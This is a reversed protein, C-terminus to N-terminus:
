KKPTKPAPTKVAPVPTAPIASAPNLMVKLGDPDDTKIAVAKDVYEQAKVLDKTVSIHYGALYKYSEYLQDKNAKAMDVVALFKEYHPVALWKTGTFDVYSNTRARYLHFPAFKDNIAIAKAYMSDAKLGQNYRGLTDERPTYATVFYQAMAPNYWDTSTLAQKKKAKWEMSKTSYDVAKAYKKQGYAITYMTANHNNITDLPAAKEYYTIALSDQKLCQYGKAFYVNDLFYPKVGAKVMKELNNIGDQCKGLEINSYGKMRFVDNDTAGGAEAKQTFELASEYDKALFILKATSLLVPSTAEARDVYKRFLSSAQKYRNFIIYYEGMRKYYPAFASDTEYASQYNNVTFQYNKGRLYVVGLRIYAKATKNVLISQEYATAAPGGDNKLLYADGKVINMDATLPKKTKETILDILRIAEGPDNTEEYLTYAEAIRFMVEANKMKTDLLIKDFAAKAGQANKDALMLTALGVSNLPQKPEAALGKEFTAKASALDGTRLQAYGLYYMNEATPSATVVATMTAKAKTPQDGDLQALGQQVTQGNVMNTFLLGAAVLLSKM